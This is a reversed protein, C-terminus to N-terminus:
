ITVWETVVTQGTALRVVLRLPGPLVGTLRFRGAHDLSVARTEDPRQAEVASVDGAMVQGELEGPSGESVELEVVADGVEFTLSRLGTSSRLGAGADEFLSDFTLAALEADVTRWTYSAKAASVVEAPVPDHRAVAIGLLRELEDDGDAHTREDREETSMAAEKVM